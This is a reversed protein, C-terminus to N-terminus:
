KHRIRWVVLALCVVLLVCWLLITGILIALDQGATM